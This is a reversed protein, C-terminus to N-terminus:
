KRRGSPLSMGKANMIFLIILSKSSFSISALHSLILVYKVDVLDDHVSIIVAIGGESNYGPTRDADVEVWEGVSLFKPNSTVLELNKPSCHFMAAPAIRSATIHARLKEAIVTNYNNGLLKTKIIGKMGKVSDKNLKLVESTQGDKTMARFAIGYETVESWRELVVEITFTVAAPAAKKGNTSRRKAKIVNGETSKSLNLADERRKRKAAPSKTKSTPPPPLDDVEGGSIEDESPLNDLDLLKHLLLLSFLEFSSIIDYHWM